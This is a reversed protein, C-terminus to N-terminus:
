SSKWQPILLYDHKQKYWESNGTFYNKMVEAINPLSKHVYLCEGFARNKTPASLTSVWVYGNSSLVRHVDETPQEVTILRFSYKSFDFGKLVYIEAGEVDLSLYDMVTPAKLFQLATTLTVGTLKEVVSRKGKKLQREFLREELTANHLNRKTTMSALGTPVLTFDVEEGDTATIPNTLLSCTRHVALEPYYAINPEICIGGWHLMADLAFTNSIMHWHNAALDVYFGNHKHQLIQMVIRDQRVQSFSNGMNKNENNLFDVPHLPSASAIVYRQKFGDRANEFRWHPYYLRFDKPQASVVAILFSSFIFRFIISNAAVM